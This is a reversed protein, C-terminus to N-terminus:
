SALGADVAIQRTTLPKVSLHFQTDIAAIFTNALLGQAVTGPHIGDALFLHRPGDGPTTTDIKFHGITYTPTAFATTAATAFDAIALRANTAAFATLAANVQVEAADAAAVLAAAASGQGSLSALQEAEAVIPLQSVPPLTAVAVRLTPSATLLTTVSSEINAIVTQATAALAAPATAAAAAPDSADSELLDLFDNGGILITAVDIQGAAAQAAVGATQAPLDSSTAGSLAWDDAYGQNRPTGRSRTSFTGFSVRDNHALQQVWNQAHSRDPPYFRYEDSYSDGLVAVRLKPSASALRRTELPEVAVALRPSPRRPTLPTTVGDTIAPDNAAQWHFADWPALVRPKGPNVHSRRRRVMQLM